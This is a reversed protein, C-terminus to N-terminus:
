SRKWLKKLKDSKNVILPHKYKQIYLNNWSYIDTSGIDTSGCNNCCDMMDISGINLSLCCKCYLVPEDDYENNQMTM